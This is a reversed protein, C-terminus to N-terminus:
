LFTCAEEVCLTNLWIIYFLFSFSLRFFSFPVAKHQSLPACVHAIIRRDSPCLWQVQRASCPHGRLDHWSPVHHSTVSWGYQFPLFSPPLSWRALCRSAHTISAKYLLASCQAGMCLLISFLTTVKIRHELMGCFGCPLQLCNM